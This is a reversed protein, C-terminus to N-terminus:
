PGSPEEKGALGRKRPPLGLAQGIARVVAAAEELDQPYDIECWKLGSISVIKVQSQQALSDIVSLYWRNKSSPSALADALAQKFLEPGDDKFLLLGISEGNVEALDLDKGVRLLTDGRFIVKMDDEDYEDKVSITINISGAAEHLVRDLVAPEFLTDGNLLIFDSDMEGSSHWCSVLNDTTAYRPNYLTRVGRGGYAEQIFREVKDHKFGTVVVIDDIGRALLVELQWGLVPRGQIELLCKPKDETHPLLRTGQGASLIIAKM